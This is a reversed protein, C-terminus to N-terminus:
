DEYEKSAIKAFNTENTVWLLTARFPRTRGVGAPANGSLFQNSEIYAFMNEWKALDHMGSQWRQKIQSRIKGTLVACERCVVKGAEDNLRKAFTNWLDFIEQVPVPKAKNKKEEPQSSTSTTKDTDTDADTHTSDTFGQSINENEVKELQNESTEMKNGSKAAQYRAKDYERKEEKTALDRYHKHNVIFWGWPRHDDLRVIRRGESDATRSYPDPKELYEIGAEIIELPIGTRRAVAPPTMDIVGDADCLVILQQFTVMGQWNASITGDYMSDFIKGYM